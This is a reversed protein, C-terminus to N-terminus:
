LLNNNIILPKGLHSETFLFAKDALMIATMACWNGIMNRSPPFIYFAQNIPQDSHILDKFIIRIKISYESCCHNSKTEYKNVRKFIPIPSYVSVQYVM